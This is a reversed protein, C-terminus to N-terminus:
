DDFGSYEEYKNEEKEVGPLSPFDKIKKEPEKPKEVIPKTKAKKIPKSIKQANMGPLSPFDQTTQSKAPKNKPNDVDKSSIKEKTNSSPSVPKEVPEKVEAANESEVKPEESSKKAIKGLAL